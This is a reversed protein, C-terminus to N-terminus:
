VANPSARRVGSDAVGVLARTHGGDACWQRGTGASWLLQLSVCRTPWRRATRALRRPSGGPQPRARNPSPPFRASARHAYTRASCTEILALRPARREGGDRARGGSHARLWCTGARWRREGAVLHYGGESARSVVVPQLVGHAAISAALPWAMRRSTVARSCPNPRIDRLPLEVVGPAPRSVGGADSGRPEARQAEHERRRRLVTPWPWIRRARPQSHRVAPDDSRHPEARVNRSLRRSAAASLPSGRGDGAPRPEAARRVADPPRRGGSARTGRRVCEISRGCCIM